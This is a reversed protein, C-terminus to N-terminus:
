TTRDHLRVCLTASVHRKVHFAVVSPGRDAQSRSGETTVARWFGTVHVDDRRDCPTADGGRDMTPIAAHM